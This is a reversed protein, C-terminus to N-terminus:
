SKLGMKKMAWDIRKQVKVNDFIVPLYGSSEYWNKFSNKTLVKWLQKLLLFPGGEKDTNNNTVASHWIVYATLSLHKKDM